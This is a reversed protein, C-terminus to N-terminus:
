PTQRITESSGKLNAIIEQIKLRRNKGGYNMPKRLELIKIIGGVTLHEGNKMLKAVQRFILFDKGKESRLNFKEFFPIVRSIIKEFEM